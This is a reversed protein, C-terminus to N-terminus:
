SINYKKKVAALLRFANNDYKEVLKPITEVKSPNHTEYLKHIEELCKAQLQKKMQEEREVKADEIKKLHAIHGAQMGTKIAAARAVERDELAKRCRPCRLVLSRVYAKGSPHDIRHLSKMVDYTMCSDISKAVGCGAGPLSHVEDFLKQIKQESQLQRRRRNEEYRIKATANVNEIFGM